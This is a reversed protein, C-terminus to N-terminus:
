LISSFYNITKKLGEDLSIEPKWKLLKNARTIDPKRKKPDNEDSQREFIIKSPSGTIKLIRTALEKITIEQPNGLNVIKGQLGYTTALLNLGRVLDDVYCFSRTQNGNGYITIPKKQIAQTVFNSVARGDNVEMNPGYTNFIRVIRADVDHVKIYSVVLAEAFRKAEDYCARPGVSNVNGYYTEVQPHVEPDGYVESTSAMLFKSKHIYAYDLMNKTGLSNTMLTEIPHNKYQIPSAPSAMHYVVDAPPLSAIKVTTVDAKLFTFKADKRLLKINNLNGTILNDIVYVTDKKKVHLSAIHSGIFGSGGTILVKM